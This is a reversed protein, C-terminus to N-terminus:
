EEIPTLEYALRLVKEAVEPSLSLHEFTVTEPYIRICGSLPSVLYAKAQDVPQEGHQIFLTFRTRAAQQLADYAIGSAIEQLRVQLKERYEPLLRRTIEKAVAEPPRTLGVGITAGVTSWAGKARPLFGSVCLQKYPYPYSIQVRENEDHRIEVAYDCQREPDDPVVTWGEGLAAAVAGGLARLDIEVKVAM